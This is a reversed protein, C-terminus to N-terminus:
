RHRLHHDVCGIFDIDGISEPLRLALAQELGQSSDILRERLTVTIAARPAAELARADEEDLV